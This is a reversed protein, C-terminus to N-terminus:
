LLVSVLVLLAQWGLLMAFCGRTTHRTIDDTIVCDSQKCELLLASLYLAHDCVTQLNVDSGCVHSPKVGEPSRVWSVNAVWGGSPPPPPAWAWCKTSLSSKGIYLTKLRYVFNQRLLNLAKHSICLSKGGLIRGRPWFKIKLCDVCVRWPYGRALMCVKLCDVCVTWPYGLVLMCVKSCDVCVTWPYGLVLMCVKSCDVCVTWPYGLVLMCVKSCDVCVTWRYGRVLMWLRAASPEVTRFM